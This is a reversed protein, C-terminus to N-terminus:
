HNIPTGSNATGDRLFYDQIRYSSLSAHPFLGYDADWVGVGAEMAEAGPGAELNRGYRGEMISQPQLLYVLYVREEGLQQQDHDENCCYAPSIFM